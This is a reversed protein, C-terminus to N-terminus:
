ARADEIHRRAMEVMGLLSAEPGLRGMMIFTNANQRQPYIPFRGVLERYHLRIKTLLNPLIGSRFVLGGLSIREPAAALTINVCLQAYYYAVVDEVQHVEQQPVGKGNLREQIAQFSTLGLICDKHEPCIGAHKDDVHRRPISHGLEPHLAGKWVEGNLILGANTGWGAWVHAFANPRGDTRLVYEGLAAATADNDVLVVPISMELSQELLRRFQLQETSGDKYSLNYVVPDDSSAVVGFMSIAVIDPQLGQSKIFTTIRDAIMVGQQELRVSMQDKSRHLAQNLTVWDPAEVVRYQHDVLAIEAKM